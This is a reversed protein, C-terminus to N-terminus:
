HPLRVMLGQQVFFQTPAFDTLYTVQAGRQRAFSLAFREAERVEGGHGQSDKDSNDLYLVGGPRLMEAAHCLCDFRFAGDIMALDFGDGAEDDMAHVYRDHEKAYEYRVNGCGRDELLDRVKVYWPEFAEVSCVRGAHAAYWVTSMGSGFELVRSDKGLFDSLFGIADYSIWPKRPRYDITTRLLASVLAPPAHLVVRRWGAFNGKEDHFRTRRLQNHGILKNIV